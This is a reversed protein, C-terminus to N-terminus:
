RAYRPARPPWQRERCVARWRARPTARQRPARDCAANESRRDALLLFPDSRRECRRDGLRDDPDPYVAGGSDHETARLSWADLHRQTSCTGAYLQADPSGTAARHEGARPHEAGRDDQGRSVRQDNRADRQAVAPEPDRVDGPQLFEPDIRTGYRAGARRGVRGKGPGAKRAQRMALDLGPAALYDAERLRPSTV